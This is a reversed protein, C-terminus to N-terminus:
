QRVNELATGSLHHGELWGAAALWVFMVGVADVGGFSGLTSQASESKPLLVKLHMETYLHEHSINRSVGRDLEIM